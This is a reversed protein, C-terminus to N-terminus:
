HCMTFCPLSSAEATKTFLATAAEGQSMLLMELSDVGQKDQM